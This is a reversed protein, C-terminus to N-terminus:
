VETDTRQNGLVITILGLHQQSLWWCRDLTPTAHSKFMGAQGLIPYKKSIKMNTQDNTNPVKPFKEYWDARSIPDLVSIQSTCM